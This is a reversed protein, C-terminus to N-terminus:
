PAWAVERVSQGVTMMPTITSEVAPPGPEDDAGVERQWFACGTAPAAQISTRGELRCRAATGAYVLEGFSTCHWCPQFEIRSPTFHLAM